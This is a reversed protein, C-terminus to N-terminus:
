SDSLTFLLTCLHEQLSRAHGVDWVGVGRHSEERLQPRILWQAPLPQQLHGQRWLHPLPADFGHWWVLPHIQFSVSSSDTLPTIAHSLLFSYFAASSTQKMDISVVKIEKGAHFGFSFQSNTMCSPLVDGEPASHRMHRWWIFQNRQTIWLPSVTVPAPVSRLELIYPPSLLNM